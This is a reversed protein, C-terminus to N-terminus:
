KTKVKAKRKKSKPRQKNPTYKPALPPEKIPARWMGQQDAYLMVANGRDTPMYGNDDEPYRALYLETLRELTKKAEMYTKPIPSWEIKNIVREPNLPLDTTTHLYRLVVGETITLQKAIESIKKKIM